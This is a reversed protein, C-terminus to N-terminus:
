CSTVSFFINKKFGAPFDQLTDTLSASEVSNVQKCM